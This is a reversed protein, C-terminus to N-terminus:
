HDLLKIEQLYEKWQHSSTLPLKDICRNCLIEVCSNEETEEEDKIITANNSFHKPCYFDDCISCRISKDFSFRGLCYACQNIHDGDFLAQKYEPWSMFKTTPYITPLDKEYVGFDFSEEDEVDDDNVVVGNSVRILKGIIDKQLTFRGYLLIKRSELDLPTFSTTEDSSKMFIKRTCSRRRKRTDCIKNRYRTLSSQKKLFGVGYFYLDHIFNSTMIKAGYAQAFLMKLSSMNPNRGNYILYEFEEGNYQKSITSWSIDYSDLEVMEDIMNKTQQSCEPGTTEVIISPKYKKSKHIKDDNDRTTDSIEKRKKTIESKMKRRITICQKILIIKMRENISKKEITKFNM